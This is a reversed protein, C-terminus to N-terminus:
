FLGSHEALTSSGESVVFWRVGLPPHESLHRVTRIPFFSFSWASTWGSSLFCAWVPSSRFGLRKLGLQTRCLQLNCRTMNTVSIPHQSSHNTWTRTLISSSRDKKKLNCCLCGAWTRTVSTVDSWGPKHRIPRNGLICVLPRTLSSFATAGGSLRSNTSKCNSFKEGATTVYSQSMVEPRPWLHM